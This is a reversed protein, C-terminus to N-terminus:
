LFFKEIIANLIHIFNKFHCYIVCTLPDEKWEHHSYSYGDCKVLFLHSRFLKQTFTLDFMGYRLCIFFIPSLKEVWWYFNSLACEMLWM